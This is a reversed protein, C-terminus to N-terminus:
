IDGTISILVAVPPVVQAADPHCLGAKSDGRRVVILLVAYSAKLHTTIIPANIRKAGSRALDAMIVQTIGIYGMLSSIIVVDTIVRHSTGLHVTIRKAAIHSGNLPPNLLGTTTTVAIHRQILLTNIHISRLLQTLPIQRV